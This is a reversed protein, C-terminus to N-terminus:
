ACERGERVWRSHLVCGRRLKGGFFSLDCVCLLRDAELWSLSRRRKRSGGKRWGKGGGCLPWYAEWCPTACPPSPVLPQPSPTPLISRPWCCGWCRTRGFLALCRHVFIPWVTPHHPHLRPETRSRYGGSHRRGSQVRILMCSRPFKRQEEHEGPGVGVSM